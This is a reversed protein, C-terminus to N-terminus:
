NTNIQSHRMSISIYVTVIESVSAGREGGDGGRSSEGSVCSPLSFLVHCPLVASSLIPFPLARLTSIDLCFQVAHHYFTLHFPIFTPFSMFPYSSLAHYSPKFSSSLISSPFHRYNWSTGHQFHGVRMGNVVSANVSM